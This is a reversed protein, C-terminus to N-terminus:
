KNKNYLLDSNDFLSFIYESDNGAVPKLRGWDMLQKFIKDKFDEDYKFFLNEIVGKPFVIDLHGRFVPLNTVRNRCSEIIWELFRRSVTGIKRRELLSHIRKFARSPCKFVITLVIGALLVLLGTVVDWRKEVPIINLLNEVKSISNTV